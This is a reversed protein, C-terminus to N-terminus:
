AGNYDLRTVSFWRPIIRILVQTGPKLRIVNRKQDIMDNGSPHLINTTPKEGRTGEFHSKLKQIINNM